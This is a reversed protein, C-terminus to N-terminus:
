KNTQNIPPAPLPMWHTAEGNTLMGHSIGMPVGWGTYAESAIWKCNPIRCASWDHITNKVWLDIYTGDMPATAIPQWDM